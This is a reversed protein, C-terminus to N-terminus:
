YPGSPGQPGPAGYSDVPGPQHGPPGYEGGQTEKQTKYRIFYVEPKSPQTPAQTPLVVDPAEEPKKVLVYILTKEEDPSPLPPLAPATPTPPTPAKIFVIKYHKQPPSPVPVHKPPKYDPAEPPPVHVYVHKHIVPNQLLFHKTKDRVSNLTNQAAQTTQIAQTTQEINTPSTNQELPKHESERGYLKQATSEKKRWISFIDQHDGFQENRKFGLPPRLEYVSESTIPSYIPKIEDDECSFPSSLTPFHHSPSAFDEESSDKSSTGATVKPKLPWSLSSEFIIALLLLQIAKTYKAFM